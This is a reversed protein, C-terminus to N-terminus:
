WSGPSIEASPFLPSRATSSALFLLPDHIGSVSRCKLVDRERELGGGAILDKIWNRPDMFNLIQYKIYRCYVIHLLQM